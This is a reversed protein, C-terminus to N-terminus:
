YKIKVILCFHYFKPIVNISQMRKRERMNAAARQQSLQSLSRRRSPSASGSSSNEDFNDSDHDDPNFKLLTNQNMTENSKNQLIM